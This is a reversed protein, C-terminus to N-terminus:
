DSLLSISADGTKKNITLQIECYENQEDVPSPDGACNCGAIIGFYFVGIKINISDQSDSTNLIIVKHKGDVAMNSSSLGQQLPLQKLGMKEITNKLINEFNPRGWEKIIDALNVM